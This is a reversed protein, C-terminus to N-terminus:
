AGRRRSTDAALAELVMGPTIRDIGAHWTRCIRETPPVDHAALFDGCRRCRRRYRGDVDVDLGFRACSVCGRREPQTIAPREHTATVLVQCVLGAILAAETALLDVAHDLEARTEDDPPSWAGVSHPATLSWAVDRAAHALTSAPPPSAPEQLTSRVFRACDIAVAAAHDITRAHRSDTVTPTSDLAARATPDSHTGVPRRGDSDHAAARLEARLRDGQLLRRATALRHHPPDLLWHLHVAAANLARTRDLPSLRRIPDPTM